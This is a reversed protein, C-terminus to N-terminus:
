QRAKRMKVKWMGRLQGQEYNVALDDPYKVQIQQLAAADLDSSNGHCKLCTPMMIKIPKYYVAHQDGILLTDKRGAVFHEWVM